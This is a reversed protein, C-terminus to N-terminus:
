VKDKQDMDVVKGDVVMKTCRELIRNPAGKAVGIFAKKTLNTFIGIGPSNNQSDDFKLRITRSRMFFIILAVKCESEVRVLVSM